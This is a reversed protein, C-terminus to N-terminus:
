VGGKATTQLPADLEADFQDVILATARLVLVVRAHFGSNTSLPQLTPTAQALWGVGVGEMPHVWHIPNNPDDRPTCLRAWRGSLPPLSCYM